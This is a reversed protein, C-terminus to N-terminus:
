DCVCFASRVQQQDLQLEGSRVQEAVSVMKQEESDRVDNSDTEITNMLCDISELLKKFDTDAM